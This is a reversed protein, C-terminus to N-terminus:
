QHKNGKREKIREKIREKNREKNREKMKNRNNIMIRTMRQKTTLLKIKREIVM